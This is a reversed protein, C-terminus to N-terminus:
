YRKGCTECLKPGSQFQMMAADEQATRDTDTAIKTAVLQGEAVLTAHIQQLQAATVGALENGAQMAQMQGVASQSMAQARQQLAADNQMQTNQLGFQQGVKQVSNGITTQWQGFQNGMQTLNMAQNGWATANQLRATIGGAQGSLLSAGNAVNRIQIMDNTVTAWAQQPLAVTNQLLLMKQQIENQYQQLQTGYSAAQKALQAIQNYADSCNACFVLDGAGFLAHAPRPAYAGTACVLASALLLKRMQIVSRPGGAQM